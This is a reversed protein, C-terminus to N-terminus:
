ARYRALFARDIRDKLWRMARGALWFRRWTALGTGDGLNLILLAHKQARYRRQPPVARLKANLNAFLVPAQRVAHVGIMPLRTGAVAACDGVAHVRADGSAALDDGVVLAGDQLELGLGALLPLAHLGTARVLLDFGIPGNDTWAMDDVIRAVNVPRLTVGRATLHSAVFAAARRPLGPLFRAAALTVTAQPHAAINAALEIASPGGGVVLVRQPKAEVAGRLDALRAIPKAAFNRPDDDDIGPLAAVVSGVDLSLLDFPVSQGSSCRVQTRDIDTASERLWTVGRLLRDLAIRDDEPSWRGGVMGTALGSYWFDDPAIVTIQAGADVLLQARKLAYLHGHGAGVFVLRTM